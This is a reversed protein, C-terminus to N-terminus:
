ALGATSWWSEAQEDGWSHVLPVARLRRALERATDPREAPNKKLCSLILAELQSPMAGPAHDSPPEPTSHIHASVIEYMSGGGFVPRGTALWYAVCGLAYLDARGDAAKGLAVEPAMFQPTGVAHDPLTLRAGEPEVAHVQTVLGFDLVKVFDFRNGNRCVYINAPKVDRHILGRGHAEDLSECVQIALHVIRAPPLPASGACSITATSGRCFSWSM